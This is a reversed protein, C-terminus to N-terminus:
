TSYWFFLSLFKLILSCCGRLFCFVKEQECKGRRKSMPAFYIICLVRENCFSGLMRWLNNVLSDKIKLNKPFLSRYHFKWHSLTSFHEAFVEQWRGDRCTYFWVNESGKWPKYNWVAFSSIEEFLFNTVTARASCSQYFFNKFILENEAWKQPFSKRLLAVVHNYCFPFYTLAKQTQGLNGEMFQM